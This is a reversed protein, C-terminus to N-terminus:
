KNPVTMGLKSSLEKNIMKIEEIEKQLKERAIREELLEKELTNIVTRSISSKNSKMGGKSIVSVVKKSSSVVSGGKSNYLILYFKFSKGQRAKQSM